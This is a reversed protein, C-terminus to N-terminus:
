GSLVLFHLLSEHFVTNRQYLLENLGAVRELLAVRPGHHGEAVGQDVRRANLLGDTQAIYKGLQNLEEASLTVVRLRM